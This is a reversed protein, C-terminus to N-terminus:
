LKWNGAYKLKRFDILKKFAKSPINTKRVYTSCNGHYHAEGFHYTTWRKDRKKAHSNLSLDYKGKEIKLIVQFFLTIKANCRYFNSYYTKGTISNFHSECSPSSEYNKEYLLILDLYPFGEKLVMEHLLNVLVQRENPSLSWLNSKPTWSPGYSSTTTSTGSDCFLDMRGTGPYNNIASKISDSIAKKLEEFIPLVIKDDDLKMRSDSMIRVKEVDLQAQQEKLREEIEKLDNSMKKEKIDM